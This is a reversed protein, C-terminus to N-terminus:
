ALDDLRHPPQEEGSDKGEEDEWGPDALAEEPPPRRRPKGEEAEPSVQAQVAPAPSVPAALELNLSGALEVREVAM